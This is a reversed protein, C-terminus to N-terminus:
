VLHTGELPLLNFYEDTMVCELLNLGEWFEDSAKLLMSVTSDWDIKFNAFYSEDTGLSIEEIDLENMPDIRIFRIIVGGLEGRRGSGIAM